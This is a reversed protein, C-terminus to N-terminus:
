GTPTTMHHWESLQALVAVDPFRGDSRVSLATLDPPAEMEESPGRYGRAESGHCVACNAAFLRSGQAVSKSDEM